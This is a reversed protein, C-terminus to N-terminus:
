KEESEKYEIPTVGQLIQIEKALEVLRNNLYENIIKILEPTPKLFPINISSGPPYKCATIYIDREDYQLIEKIENMESIRDAVEHQKKFLSIPSKLLDTIKSIM